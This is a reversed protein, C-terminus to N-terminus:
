RVVAADPSTACGTGTLEDALHDGLRLALEVISYTPNCHGATAFVNSGGLFLNTLGHVRCDADVVGERPNDSMRTTCMQHHAGVQHGPTGFEPATPNDVM